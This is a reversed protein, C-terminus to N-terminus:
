ALRLLAKHNKFLFNFIQSLVEIGLHLYKNCHPAAHHLTTCHPAIHHLSTCRPATHHLTTCGLATHQLALRIGLELGRRWAVPSQQLTNCHPATHHLTTCHPTAHHLTTCHTATCTLWKMWTRSALGGTQKSTERHRRLDRNVDVHTETSMSTPRQQCRRPDRKVDVHTEKSM